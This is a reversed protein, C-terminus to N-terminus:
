AGGGGIQGSPTSERAETEVYRPGTRLAPSGEGDDRKVGTHSPGAVVFRVAGRHRHEHVQKATGECREVVERAAKVASRRGEDDWPGGDLTGWRGTMAVLLVRQAEPYLEWWSRARTRAAEAAERRLADIRARVKERKLLASASAAASKYRRDTSDYRTHDGTYAELYARTANGRLDDPGAYYLRCFKEQQPTLDTAQPDQEVNPPKMTDAPYRALAEM